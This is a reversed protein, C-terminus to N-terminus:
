FRSCFIIMTPMPLQENFAQDLPLAVGIRVSLGESVMREYNISVLRNGAELYTANMFVKPMWDENAIEEKTESGFVQSLAVQSVMAWCLGMLGFFRLLM